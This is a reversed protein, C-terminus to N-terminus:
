KGDPTDKGKEEKVQKQKPIVEEYIHKKSTHKATELLARPVDYKDMM